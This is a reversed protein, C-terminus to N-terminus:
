QDSQQKPRHADLVNRVIQRHGLLSLMSVLLMPVWQFAPEKFLFSSVLFVVGFLGYAIAIALAIRRVQVDDSCVSLFFLGLGSILFVVTVMHWVAFMVARDIGELDAGLVRALHAQGIFVHAAATLIVGLGALFLPTSRINM